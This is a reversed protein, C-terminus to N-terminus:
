GASVLTLLMSQWLWSGLRPVEKGRKFPELGTPLGQGKHSVAFGERQPHSSDESQAALLPPVQTRAWGIAAGLNWLPCCPGEGGGLRGTGCEPGLNGRSAEISLGRCPGPLSPGPCLGLYVRVGLVELQVSLVCFGPWKLQFIIWSIM